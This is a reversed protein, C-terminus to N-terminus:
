CHSQWYLGRRGYRTCAYRMKLKVNLHAAIVGRESIKGLRIQRQSASHFDELTVAETGFLVVKPNAALRRPELQSAGSWFETQVTAQPELSRTM